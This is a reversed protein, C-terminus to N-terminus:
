LEYFYSGAAAAGDDDIFVTFSVLFTHAFNDTNEFTIGDGQLDLGGFTGQTGGAVPTDWIIAQAGNTILQSASTQSWTVTSPQAMYPPQVVGTFSSPPTLLGNVTKGTGLNWVTGTMIPSSLFLTGSGTNQVDGVIEASCKVVANAADTAIAIGGTSIGSIAAFRVECTSHMILSATAEGNYSLTASEAIITLPVSFNVVLAESYIAGDLIVITVPLTASAAPAFAATISAFPASFSGNGTMDSGHLSSVFLTDPSYSTGGVAGWVPHLHSNLILADGPAADAEPPLVVDAVARGNVRATDLEQCYVTTFAAM